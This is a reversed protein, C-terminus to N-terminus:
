QRWDTQERKRYRNNADVLAKTTKPWFVYKQIRKEM